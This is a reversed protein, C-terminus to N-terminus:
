NWVPLRQHSCEKWETDGQGTEPCRHGQARGARICYEPTAQGCWGVDVVVAVCDDLLRPWAGALPYPDVAIVDALAYALQQGHKTHLAPSQDDRHQGSNLTPFPQIRGIPLVSRVSM